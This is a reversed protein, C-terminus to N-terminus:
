VTTWGPPPIPVVAGGGGPSHSQSHSVGKLSSSLWAFLDRFRLGALKQAGRPAIQNLTNMDAGQVGVAFFAFAGLRKV